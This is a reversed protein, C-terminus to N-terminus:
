FSVQGLTVKEAVFEMHIAKSNFRLIQLSFSMVLQKLQPVAGLHTYLLVQRLAVEDVVGWM